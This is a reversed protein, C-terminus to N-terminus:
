SHDAAQVYPFGAGTTQAQKVDERLYWALTGGGAALCLAALIIIIM